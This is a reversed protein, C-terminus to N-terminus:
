KPSMNGPEILEHISSKDIFKIMDRAKTPLFTKVLKWITTLVWPMNYVMIKSVFNPYHYMMTNILFKIAEIEMNRLGAGESDFLISIKKGQEEKDLKELLWVFHRKDDESNEEDKVHKRVCIVLMRCGEKDRGACYVEGRELVVKSLLEKKIHEVKFEKRWLFTDVVMKVTNDRTSGELLSAHIWFRNLYEDDTKLRELDVKSYKNEGENALEEVVKGLVERREEETIDEGAIM